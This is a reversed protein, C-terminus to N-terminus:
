ERPLFCNQEPALILFFSSFFKAFFPLFHSHDVMAEAMARKRYMGRYRDCLCSRLLCCWSRLSLQAVFMCCAALCVHQAVQQLCVCAAAAGCATKVHVNKEDALPPATARGGPQTTAIGKLRCEAEPRLVAYRRETRAALSMYRPM